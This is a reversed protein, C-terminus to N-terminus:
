LIEWIDIDEPNAFVSEGEKEAIVSASEEDLIVFLIGDHTQLASAPVDTTVEGFFSRHMIDAKAKGFGAMVIANAELIDAIGSTIAKKPVKTTDGGFFKNANAEITEQNLDVVHVTSDFADGPMNFAIHGDKDGIGLLQIFYSAWKNTAEIITKYRGVEAEPNMWEYPVYADLHPVKWVSNELETQYSYFPLEGKKAGPSIYNDLQRFTLDNESGAVTEMMEIFYEYIKVPTQGTATGFLLNEFKTYAIYFIEAAFKSAEDRNPFKLFIRTQNNAAQNM